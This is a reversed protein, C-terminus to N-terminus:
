PQLSLSIIHREASVPDIGLRLQLTLLLQVWRMDGADRAALAARAKEGITM